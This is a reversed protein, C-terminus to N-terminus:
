TKNAEVYGQIFRDIADAAVKAESEGSSLRKTLDVPWWDPHFLYFPSAFEGNLREIGIAAQALGEISQTTPLGSLAVCWGAICAVTGCASIDLPKGIEVPSGCWWDDMSFKEPSALIAEKVKLLLEKNLM